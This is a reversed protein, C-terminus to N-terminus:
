KLFLGLTSTFIYDLGGIYLGTALSVVLIIITLHTAQARTPWSVKSLEVKVEKVYTILNM